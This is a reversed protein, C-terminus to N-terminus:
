EIANAISDNATVVIIESNSETPNRQLEALLELGDLEPMHIDLFVLHPLERYILELATKGNEAEFVQRGERKLAKAMGYRANSEDDAILIKM